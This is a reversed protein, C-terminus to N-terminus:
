VLRPTCGEAHCDEFPLTNPWAYGPSTFKYEGAAPSSFYVEIYYGTWHGAKPEPPTATFVTDAGAEVADPQLTEGHWIIPVLCNGGFVPKKLTVEPLKCPETINSALRVWRFDRRTTSFTQAHRLVVKGHSMGAPLTVSLKGTAADYATTFSPMPRGASIAEFSAALTPMLAPLGTALSHESNPAILLRTNKEFQDRWIDTWDFQMFEDDSSDVVVKPLAALREAYYKPDVIQGLKQFGDSDLQPIIGADVQSSM